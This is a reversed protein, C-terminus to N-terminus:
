EILTPSADGSDAALRSLHAVIAGPHAFLMGPTEVVIAVGTVAFGGSMQHSLLLPRYRDGLESTWLAIDPLDLDQELSRTKVDHDQLETGLFESVYAALGDPADLDGIQASLEPGQDGLLFLFGRETGSSRVLLDITKHARESAKHSGLMMATVGMRTAGIETTFTLEAARVDAVRAAQQLKEHKAILVRSKAGRSHQACLASFREYDTQNKAIIAVRARTEYALVLNLGSTGLAHFSAIVDDAHRTSEALDQLTALVLALPMRIYNAMYGLGAREAQAVYDIGHERAAEHQGLEHLVRV